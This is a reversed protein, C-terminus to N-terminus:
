WMGTGRREPNACVRSALRDAPTSSPSAWGRETHSAEPQNDELGLARIRRWDNDHTAEGVDARPCERPAQVGM